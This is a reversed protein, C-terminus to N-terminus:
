RRDNISRRARWWLAGCAIAVLALGGLERAEEAEGGKMSWSGYYGLETLDARTSAFLVLWWVIAALSALGALIRHPRGAAALGCAVAAALYIAMWGLPDPDNWQVAASFVFVAAFFGAVVASARVHSGNCM